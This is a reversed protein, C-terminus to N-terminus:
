FLDPQILEGQEEPDSPVETEIIEESEEDAANLKNELDDRGWVEVGLDIAKKEKSSGSGKTKVVLVSTKKSVSSGIKGGEAKVQEELEPSRFGTFVLTQGAFIGGENVLVKKYKLGPLEAAFEWYADISDLYSKASIESYGDVELLEEFSPKVGAQDYKQLLELKKEGLGKFLNSAHQLRPLPVDVVSIKISDLVKKAKRQKFGELKLLDEMTLNLLDKVSQYGADWLSTIIGEGVEDAKLLAFFDILAAKTKAPCTKNSCVLDVRNENWVLESQCTPCEKPLELQEIANPVAIVIPSPAAANAPATPPALPLM